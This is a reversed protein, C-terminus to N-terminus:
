AVSAGLASLKYGLAAVELVDNSTLAGAMGPATFADFSNDAVSSAWDAIDGGNVAADNYAGLNTSGDNTSFYGGNASRELVGPSSYHFLDLPTYTAAGNMSAGEVGIRGMVQTIEHEAISYLDYDNSPVAGSTGYYMPYASSFGVYGDLSSSTPNVYGFAKAEASAIYFQSATPENSAAFSYGDGRLANTVASYHALYGYSESEGLAGSGLQSGAIEGYGVDINVVEKTSFLSALYQAASKVAQMFGSPANAVSPDWILDFQLGGASGVLTPSPAAAGSGTAQTVSSGHTSASSAPSLAGADNIMYEQGFGPSLSHGLPNFGGFALQSSRASSMPEAQFFM